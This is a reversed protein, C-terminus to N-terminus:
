EAKNDYYSHLKAILKTDEFGPKSWNFTICIRPSAQKKKYCISPGDKRRSLKNFTCVACIWNLQLMLSCRICIYTAQKVVMFTPMVILTAQNSVANPQPEDPEIINAFRNKCISPVFQYTDEAIATLVELITESQQLV